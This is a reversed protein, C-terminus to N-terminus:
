VLVRGWKDVAMANDRRAGCSCPAAKTKEIVRVISARGGYDYDANVDHVFGRDRCLEFGVGAVGEGFTTMLTVGTAHVDHLTPICVSGAYFYLVSVNFDSKLTDIKVPQLRVEGLRHLNLKWLDITPRM